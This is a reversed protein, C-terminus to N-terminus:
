VMKEPLQLSPYPGEQGENEGPQIIGAGEAAGWVQAVSLDGAGNGKEPCLGAGWCREQCNYLFNQLVEIIKQRWTWFQSWTSDWTHKVDGSEEM